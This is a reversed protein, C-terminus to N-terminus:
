KKAHALTKLYINFARELNNLKKEIYEKKEYRTAESAIKKAMQMESTNVYTPIKKKFLFIENMCHGKEDEQNNKFWKRFTKWKTHKFYKKFNRYFSIKFWLIILWQYVLSLSLFTLNVIIMVASEHSLSLQDVLLENIYFSLIVINAILIIQILYRLIKKKQLSKRWNFLVNTQRIERNEKNSQLYFHWASLAFFTTVSVFNAFLLELYINRHIDERFHSFALILSSISAIILLAIILFRSLEMLRTFNTSARVLESYNYFRENIIRRNADRRFFYRYTKHYEYLTEEHIILEKDKDKRVLLYHKINELNIYEIDVFETEGTEMLGRSHVELFELMKEKKTTILKLRSELFSCHYELQKQENLQEKIQGAIFNKM